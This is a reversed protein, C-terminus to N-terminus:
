TTPMFATDRRILRFGYERTASVTPEVHLMAKLREGGEKLLWDAWDQLVQEPDTPGGYQQLLMAHQARVLARSRWRPGFKQVLRPMWGPIARELLKLQELYAKALGRAFPPVHVMAARLSVQNLLQHRSPRIIVVCISEAAALLQRFKPDTAHYSRWIKNPRLDRQAPYYCCTLDCHLIHGGSGTPNTGDTPTEYSNHAGVELWVSSDIPLASSIERPLMGQKLARIFTTKGSCSLGGVVLLRKPDVSWEM